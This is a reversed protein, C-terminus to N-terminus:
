FVEFFGLFLPKKISIKELRLFKKDSGGIKQLNKPQCFRKKVLYTISPFFLM